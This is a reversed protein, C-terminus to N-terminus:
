GELCFELGYHIRDFTTVKQCALILGPMYAERNLVNHVISLTEAEAGFLIEQKAVLGPLRISHIPAKCSGSACLFRDANDFARECDKNVLTYVGTTQESKGLMENKQTRWTAEIKAATALATGSPTDLKKEHHAEIIEAKAFYRAIQEACRMQLVAGISFNPIILGGLSKEKSQQLLVHIQEKKLGSTGIIIHARHRMLIQANAWVCEANTLDIVIDPHHSKIAQDLNDNRGTKAILTFEPHKEITACALQGMRGFAGNILITKPM